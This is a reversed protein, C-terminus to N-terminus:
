HHRMVAAARGRGNSYHESKAEFVGSGKEFKVRLFETLAGLGAADGAGLDAAGPHEDIVIKGGIQAREINTGPLRQM